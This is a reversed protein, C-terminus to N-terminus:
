SGEELDEPASLALDERMGELARAHNRVQEIDGDELGCAELSEALRMLGAEHLDLGHLTGLVVATSIPVRRLQEQEQRWAELQSALEGLHSAAKNLEDARDNEGWEALRNAEMGIAIGGARVGRAMAKFDIATTQQTTM